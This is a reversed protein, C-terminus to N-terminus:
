HGEITTNVYIANPVLPITNATSTDRNRIHDSQNEREPFLSQISYVSSDSNNGRFTIRSWFLRRYERDKDTPSILFRYSLLMGVLVAVLLELYSYLNTLTFSQTYLKHTRVTDFAITVLDLSCIATLAFKQNSHMYLRWIIPMPSSGAESSVLLIPLLM